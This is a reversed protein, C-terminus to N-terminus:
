GQRGQNIDDLPPTIANYTTTGLPNPERPIAALV